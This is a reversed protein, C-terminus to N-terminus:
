SEKLLIKELNEKYVSFSFRDTVDKLNPIYSNKDALVTAIANTIEGPNDPDILLGFKGNGLADVSGDKNGAIVPKGYYMAEIFVIGFGEKKSPMIYLDAIQFHASLEEDPVFGAFIIQGNLNLKAAIDDLRKKEANDYKGVVLYKIDPYQHKLDNIAYLVSDYGKYKERSSLRTLTMLVTDGQNLNYREKLMAEKGSQEPSTLFPDLCNNLVTLKEEPFGHVEMMKKKTCNGVTLVLDCKNLMWKKWAGFPEWVEIGHALLVLRTKKSFLKILFGVLLLNIHSLIVIDKKLGAGAADCIFLFKKKAYGKFIGKPFYKENIDEQQDYMSLVQFNHQGNDGHTLEYLAKGVQRSVKEIGGTASFTRLTLFLIRKGKAM